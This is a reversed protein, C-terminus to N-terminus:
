HIQQLFLQPTAGVALLSMLVSYNYNLKTLLLNESGVKGGINNGPISDHCSTYKVTEIKVFGLNCGTESPIPDEALLGKQVKSLKKSNIKMASLLFITLSLCILTKKITMIKM